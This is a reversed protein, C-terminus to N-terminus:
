TQSGTQRDPSPVGSPAKASGSLWRRPWPATQSPSSHPPGPVRVGPLHDPLEHLRDARFASQGPQGPGAHRTRDACASLGKRRRPCIRAPRPRSASIGIQALMPLLVHTLHFASPAFDQFLGGRIEAESRMPGPRRAAAPAGAHVQHILIQGSGAGRAALSAPWGGRVLGSSRRAGPRAGLWGGDSAACGTSAATRRKSAPALLRKIEEAAERCREERQRGRHQRHCRGVADCAADVAVGARPM